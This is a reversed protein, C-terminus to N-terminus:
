SEVALRLRAGGGRRCRRWRGVRDCRTHRGASRTGAVRVDLSSGVRAPRDGAHRLPRDRHRRRDHPRRRKAGIPSRRRPMPWADDKTPGDASKGRWRPHPVHPPNGGRRRRNRADRTCCTAPWTGGAPHKLGPHFRLTAPSPMHLGRSALYTEVLTGTAPAAARWIAMAADMRIADAGDRGRGSPPGVACRPLRPGREAWLGRAQLAAIVKAQGCNAHCFVLTRGAMGVHISLSPERDHRVRPRGGM